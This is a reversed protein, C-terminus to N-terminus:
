LVEISTKLRKPPEIEKHHTPCLCILNDMDNAEKYSDFGHYYVIHHVDLRRGLSERDVDCDPHECTHDARERAKQRVKWWNPGRYSNDGGNWMHHNEGRVEESLWERFEEPHNKGHFPNGEGSYIQSKHVAECEDGCFVNDQEVRKKQCRFEGGCISCEAKVGAISEDHTRNHHIKMGRESTFDDRDCSPCGVSM